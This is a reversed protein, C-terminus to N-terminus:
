VDEEEPQKGDLFRVQAARLEYSSGMTGDGRHYLRPSGTAPDPMLRGEVLVKSGRQLYQACAEAQAGWAQVRFWTTETTLENAGTMRWKRETAVSFNVVPSGDPLHRMEPDRGLRGIIVTQQYM